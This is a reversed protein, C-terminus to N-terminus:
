VKGKKRQQIFLNGLKKLREPSIGVGTDEFSIQVEDEKLETM